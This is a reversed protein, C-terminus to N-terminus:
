YPFIHCFQLMGVSEQGPELQGKDTGEATILM